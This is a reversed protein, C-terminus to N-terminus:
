QLGQAGEFFIISGSRIYSRDPVRLSQNLPLYGRIDRCFLLAIRIALLVKNAKPNQM